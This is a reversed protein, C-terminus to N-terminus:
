LSKYSKDEIEALFEKLMELIRSFVDWFVATKVELTESSVRFEKRLIITHMMEGLPEIFYDYNEEYATPILDFIEVLLDYYFEDTLPPDMRSLYAQSLFAYYRLDLKESMHLEYTKQFIRERQKMIYLKFDHTIEEGSEYLKSLAKSM